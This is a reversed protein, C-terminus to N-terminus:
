AASPPPSSVRHITVGRLFRRAKDLAFAVKGTEAIADMAIREAQRTTVKDARSQMRLLRRAAFVEPPYVNANM